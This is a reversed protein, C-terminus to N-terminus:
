VIKRELYKVQLWAPLTSVFIIAMMTPYGFLGMYAGLLYIDGDGLGKYVIAKNHKLAQRNRLYFIFCITLLVGVITMPITPYSSVLRLIVTHQEAIMAAHPPLPLVLLYYLLVVALAITLCPVYPPANDDNFAEHSSLYYFDPKVNPLVPVIKATAEHLIHMLGFSVLAEFIMGLRNESTIMIGLLFIMLVLRVDILQTKYDEVTVKWILIALLLCMLPNPPRFYYTLMVDLALVALMPLVYPLAKKAYRKASEM